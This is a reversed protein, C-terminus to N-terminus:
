EGVKTWQQSRHPDRVPNDDETFIRHEVADCFGIYDESKSFSDAHKSLLKKRQDNDLKKEVDLERLLEEGRKKSSQRQKTLNTLKLMFLIM